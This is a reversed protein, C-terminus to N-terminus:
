LARARALDRARAGPRGMPGRRGELGVRLRLLGPPVREGEWRARLSPKWRWGPCSLPGMSWRDHELSARRHTRCSQRRARISRATRPGAPSRTASRVQSRRLARKSSTSGFPLATGTSGTASTSANARLPKGTPARRVPARGRRAGDDDDARGSRGRRRLCIRASPARACLRPGPPPRREAAAVPRNETGGRRDHSAGARQRV